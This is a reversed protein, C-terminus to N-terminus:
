SRMYAAGWSNLTREEHAWIKIPRPGEVQELDCSFEVWNGDPDTVFFFLNNGPGHRGPGWRLPIRREAFRDAWDRIWMWDGVDYCFHDLRKRPGRFIALSHHEASCRLFASTLHGTVDKVYDSPSFGVINCYFRVMEPAQDSAFVVHQLRSPRAVNRARPSETPGIAFVLKHGDPDRLEISAGLLPTETDEVKLSAALLRDRLHSLSHGDPVAYSVYDLGNVAAHRIRLARGELTGIWTDGTREGEYGLVDVYFASLRQFDTSALGIGALHARLNSTRAEPLDADSIRM